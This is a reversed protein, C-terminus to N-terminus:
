YIAGVLMQTIGDHIDQAIRKREDEQVRVSRNLLQQLEGAKQEIEQRASQLAVMQEHLAQAMQNFAVALQGIEDHPRIAQPVRQDYHGQAISLAAVKVQELPQTFRAALWFAMLVALLLVGALSLAATQAAAQAPAFMVDSLYSVLVAWGARPVPAYAGLWVRGDAPNRYEAAGQEGRLVAQVTPVSMWDIGEAYLRSEPAVLVRANSDLLLVVAHERMVADAVTRQLREMAFEVGLAGDVLQNRRIPVALVATLRAPSGLRGSVVTRGERQAQQGYRLEDPDLAEDPVRRAVRGSADLMYLSLYEPSLRLTQVFLEQIAAPNDSQVANSSALILLLREASSVFDDISAVAVNATAASSSLIQARTASVYNQATLFAVWAVPALTICAFAVLKARLSLVPVPWQM